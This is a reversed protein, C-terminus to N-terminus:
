YGYGSGSRGGATSAVSVVPLGGSKNSLSVNMSVPQVGPGSVSVGNVSNVAVSMPISGVM